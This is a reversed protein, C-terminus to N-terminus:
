SRFAVRAKTACRMPEPKPRVCVQAKSHLPARRQRVCSFLMVRCSAPGTPEGAAMSALMM